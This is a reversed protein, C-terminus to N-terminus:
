DKRWTKKKVYEFYYQIDSVYYSGVNLGLKDKQKPASVKFKRNKYPM